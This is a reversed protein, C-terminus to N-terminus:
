DVYVDAFRFGRNNRNWDSIVQVGESNTFLELVVAYEDIRYNGGIDSVTGKSFDGSSIIVTAGPLPVRTNRDMVMGRVNQMPVQAQVTGSIVVRSLLFPHCCAKDQCDYGFTHIIM